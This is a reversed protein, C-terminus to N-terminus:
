GDGDPDDTSDSAAQSRLRSWGRVLAARGFVLLAGAVIQVVAKSMAEGQRAWMYSWTDTQDVEPRSLLVYL